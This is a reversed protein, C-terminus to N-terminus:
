RGKMANDFAARDRACAASMDAMDRAIQEPTNRAGYTPSTQRHVQRPSAVAPTNAKLGALEEPELSRGLRKKEAAAQAAFSPQHDMDLPETEGHARKQEKLDGYNATDGPKM